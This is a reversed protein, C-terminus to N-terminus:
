QSRNAILVELHSIIQVHGLIYCNTFVLKRGLGGAFVPSTVTQLGSLTLIAQLSAVSPGYQHRVKFVLYIFAALESPSPPRATSVHM